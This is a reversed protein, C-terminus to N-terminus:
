RINRVGFLRPSGCFKCPGYTLWVNLHHQCVLMEQTHCGGSVRHVTILYEAPDECPPEQYSLVEGSYSVVKVHAECKLDFDLDRLVEAETQTATV